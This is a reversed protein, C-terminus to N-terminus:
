LPNERVHRVGALMTACMFYFYRGLQALRANV